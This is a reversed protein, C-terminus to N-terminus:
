IKDDNEKAVPYIVGVLCTVRAVCMLFWTQGCTSNINFIM